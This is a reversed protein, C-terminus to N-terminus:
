APIGAAQYLERIIMTYAKAVPIHRLGMECEPRRAENWFRINGLYGFPIRIGSQVGSIAHPQNDITSDADFSANFILNLRNISIQKGASGAGQNDVWLRSQYRKAASQLLSLEETNLSAPDVGELKIKQEIRISAQRERLVALRRSDGDHLADELDEPRRQWIYQPAKNAEVPIMKLDSPKMKVPDVAACYSDVRWPVGLICAFGIITDGQQWPRNKTRGLITCDDCFENTVLKMVVAVARDLSGFRQLVDAFINRKKEEDMTCLNNSPSIGLIDAAIRVTSPDPHMMEEPLFLEKRMGQSIHLPTLRYIRQMRDQHEPYHTISELLQSGSGFFCRDQKLNTELISLRKALELPLDSADVTRNIEEITKDSGKLAFVSLAAILFREDNSIDSWNICSESVQVKQLIATLEGKRESREAGREVIAKGNMGIIFDTATVSKTLIQLYLFGQILFEGGEDHISVQPMAAFQQCISYIATALEQSRKKDPTNYRRVADPVARDRDYVIEPDSSINPVGYLLSTSQTMGRYAVLLEQPLQDTQGKILVSTSQQTKM